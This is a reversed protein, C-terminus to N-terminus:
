CLSISFMLISVASLTGDTKRDVIVSEANPDSISQSYYMPTEPRKAKNVRRTHLVDLHEDFVFKRTKILMNCM